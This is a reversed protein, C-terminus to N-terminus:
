ESSRIRLEKYGTEKDQERSFRLGRAEGIVIEATTYILCGNVLHGGVTKGSSDAIAIHLHVGDQGLTGVLSVIEFKGAFTTPDKQDALRITASRLSGVATLIFGTRIKRGKVFEEIQQRLDQGPRLRLALIRLRESEGWADSQTDPKSSPAPEDKVSRSQALVKRGVFGCSAILLSAPLLFRVAFGTALRFLTPM